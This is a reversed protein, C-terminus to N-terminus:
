PRGGGADLGGDNQGPLVVTGFQNVPVRNRNGGIGTNSDSGVPCVQRGGTMQGPTYLGGSGGGQEDGTPQRLLDISKLGAVDAVSPGNGNVPGGMSIDGNNRDCTHTTTVNGSTDKETVVVSGDAAVDKCQSSGDDRVTVTESGKFNGNADYHDTTRQSPGSGVSQYADTYGTTRGHSDRHETTVHVGDDTNSSSVRNNGYTDYQIPGSRSGQRSLDRGFMSMPRDGGATGKRGQEASGRVDTLGGGSRQSAFGPLGPTNNSRSDASFPDAPRQNGGKQGSGFVDLLGDPTTKGLGSNRLSGIEKVGNALERGEHLVGSNAGGFGPVTRTIIGKSGVDTRRPITQQISTGLGKPGDAIRRTTASIMPAPSASPVKANPYALGGGPFTPVNHSVTSRRPLNSVASPLQNVYRGAPAISSASPRASPKLMPVSPGQILARPMSVAPNYKQSPLAPIKATPMVPHAANLYHASASIALLLIVNTKM